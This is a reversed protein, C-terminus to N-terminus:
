RLIGCGEVCRVAFLEDGLRVEFNLVLSCPNNFTEYSSLCNKSLHLLSSRWKVNLLCKGKRPLKWSVTMVSFEWVIRTPLSARCSASEKNYTFLIVDFSNFLRLICFNLM